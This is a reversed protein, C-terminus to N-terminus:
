HEAIETNNVYVEGGGPKKPPRNLVYEESKAKTNSSPKNTSIERSEQGTSAEEEENKNERRSSSFKNSENTEIQEHIQKNWPDLLVSKMGVSASAKEEESKNEGSSSFKNSKNTKIRKYIERNSPNSLVTRLYWWGVSFRFIIFIIFIIDNGQSTRLMDASSQESRWSAKGVLHSFTSEVGDQAQAVEKNDRKIMEMRIKNFKNKPTGAMSVLSQQELRTDEVRRCTRITSVM